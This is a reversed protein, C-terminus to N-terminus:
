LTCNTSSIRRGERTRSKPAKGGNPKGKFRTGKEKIFIKEFLDRVKGLLLVKLPVERKKRTVGGEL